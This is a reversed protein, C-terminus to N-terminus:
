GTQARLSMYVNICNLNSFDMEVTFNRDLANATALAEEITPTQFLFDIYEACNTRRKGDSCRGTPLLNFWTGAGGRTADRFHDTYYPVM